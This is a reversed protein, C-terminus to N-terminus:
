GRLPSLHYGVADTTPLILLNSFLGLGPLPSLFGKRLGENM